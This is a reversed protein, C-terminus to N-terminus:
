APVVWVAATAVEGLDLVVLEDEVEGAGSPASPASPGSPAGTPSAAAPAADVRVATGAGMPRPGLVHVAAGLVLGHESFSRLLQPDADSVRAVTGGTGAPVDSLRLAAPVVVRGDATPIPDGHPDHRPHGLRADMRAVLTDSVAHELQEAEAHVEDWSYGLAAVLYAELLRHRRVLALAARRGAATLTVAGYRQHELLGASTLKRVMESVTSVSVGLRSALASTTVADAGEPAWEALTYVAKLLDQAATSLGALPHGAGGTGGSM